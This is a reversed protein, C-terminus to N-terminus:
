INQKKLDIILYDLIDIEKQNKHLSELLLSRYKSLLIFIKDIQKKDLLNLFEDIIKQNCGADQLNQILAEKRDQDGIM